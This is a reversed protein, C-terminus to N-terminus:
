TCFLEPLKSHPQCRRYATHKCVHEHFCACLLACLKVTCPADKNRKRRFPRPKLEEKSESSFSTARSSCLTFCEDRSHLLAAMFHCLMSTSIPESNGRVFSRVQMKSAQSRPM